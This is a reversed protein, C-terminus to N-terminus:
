GPPLLHLPVFPISFSVHVVVRHAYNLFNEKGILNEETSTQRRPIMLFNVQRTSRVILSLIKGTVFSRLSVPFNNALFDVIIWKTGSCMVNYRWLESTHHLKVVM